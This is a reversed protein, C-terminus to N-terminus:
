SELSAGLTRVSGQSARREEDTWNSVWAVPVSSDDVQRTSFEVTGVLCAHGNNGPKLGSVFAEVEIGRKRKIWQKVRRGPEYISDAKKWVTGEGGSVIIHNHTAPKNVVFSPVAEIFPNESQRLAKELLDQREIFPLLSIDQGCYRLVDFM